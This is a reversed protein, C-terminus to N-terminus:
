HKNYAIVSNIFIFMKRIKVGRLNCVCSIHMCQIDQKFKFGSLWNQFYLGNGNVLNFSDLKYNKKRNKKKNLSRATSSADVGLIQGKHVGTM